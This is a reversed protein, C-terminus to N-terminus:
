GAAISRRRGDMSVNGQDRGSRETDRGASGPWVRRSTSATRAPRPPPKNGGTIRIQGSPTSAATRSSPPARSAPSIAAASARGRSAGSTDRISRSPAHHSAAAACYASTIAGRRSAISLGRSNPASIRAPKTAHAAARPAGGSATSAAINSPARRASARNRRRRVRSRPPASAAAPTRPGTRSRHIAGSSAWLPPSRTIRAANRAPPAHAYLGRGAVPSRISSASVPESNAASLASGEADPSTRSGVSRTRSPPPRSRPAYEHCSHISRGRCHPVIRVEARPSRASAAQRSGGRAAARNQCRAPASVAAHKANPADSRWVPL